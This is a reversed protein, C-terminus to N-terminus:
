VESEDLIPAPARRMRVDCATEIANAFWGIMVGEDIGPWCKCFQEAWKAADDGCYAIVEHDEMSM